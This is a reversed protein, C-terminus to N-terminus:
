WYQGGPRTAIAFWGVRVPPTHTVELGHQDLIALADYQTLGGRDRKSCFSRAPVRIALHVRTRAIAWRLLRLPDALKHVIGLAMVVDYEPLLDHALAASGTDGLDHQWFRIPRHRWLREGTAIQEADNTVCDAVDAGADLLYAAAYGEGAGLDLVTAHSVRGRDRFWELGELRDALVVGPTAPQAPDSGIWEPL